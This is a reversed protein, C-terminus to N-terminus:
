RARRVAAGTYAGQSCNHPHGRLHGDQFVWVMVGLSAAISLLFGLVATLPVLLSRFAVTLLIFALVVIIAVFLPLAAGLRASVDIDAATNGAVYGTGGARSVLPLEDDRMRHVLTVTAQADPGTDPTVSPVAITGAPNVFPASVAAIDPDRHLKGTLQSLAAERTPPRSARPM